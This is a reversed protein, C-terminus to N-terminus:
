KAKEIDIKLEEGLDYTFELGEGEIQKGQKNM